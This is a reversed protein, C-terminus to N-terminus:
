RRPTHHPHHPESNSAGSREYFGHCQLPSRSSNVTALKLTLHQAPHPKQLVTVFLFDIQKRVQLSLKLISTQLLLFKSIFSSM